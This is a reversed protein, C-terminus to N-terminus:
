SDVVFHIVHEIATRLHGILKLLLPILSFQLLQYNERRRVESSSLNFRRVYLSGQVKDGARILEVSSRYKIKSSLM